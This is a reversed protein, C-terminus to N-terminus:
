SAGAEDGAAFMRCREQVGGCKGGNREAKVCLTCLDGKHPGHDTQNGCYRNICRFADGGCPAVIVACDDDPLGRSAM